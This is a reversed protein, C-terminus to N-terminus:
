FYSHNSHRHHLSSQTRKCHRVSWSGKLKLVNNYHQCYKFIFLAVLVTDTRVHWLTLIANCDIMQHLMYESFIAVVSSCFDCLPIWYQNKLFVFCSTYCNVANETTWTIWPQEAGQPPDLNPWQLTSSSPPPCQHSAAGGHAVKMIAGQSLWRWTAQWPCCPWRLSTFHGSLSWQGCHILTISLVHTSGAASAGTWARERASSARPIGAWPAAQPCQAGPVQLFMVRCLTTM